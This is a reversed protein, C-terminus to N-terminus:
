VCDFTFAEPGGLLTQSQAECVSQAQPVDYGAIWRLQARMWQQQSEAISPVSCSIYLPWILSFRGTHKSTDGYSVSNQPWISQDDQSNTNGITRRLSSLEYGLLFPVSACIDNVLEKSLKEFHANGPPTKDNPSCPWSSARTLISQLILRSIRYLNWVRAVYFDSYTHIENPAYNPISPEPSTTSNLNIAVSYSWGSPVERAWEALEQDLEKVAWILDPIQSETTAEISSSPQSLIDNALSQLQPVKITKSILKDETNEFSHVSEKLEHFIPDVPRSLQTHSHM